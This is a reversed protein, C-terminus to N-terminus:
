WHYQGLPQGFHDAGNTALVGHNTKRRGGSNSSFLGRTTNCDTPFYYNDNRDCGMNSEPGTASDDDGNIIASTAVSLWGYGNGGIHWVYGVSLDNNTNNRAWSPKLNDDVGGYFCGWQTVWGCADALESGGEASAYAAVGAITNAGYAGTRIQKDLLQAILGGTSYAQIYCKNSGTCESRLTAFNIVGTDIRGKGDWKNVTAVDRTSGATDLTAGSWAAESRGHMYVSYVTASASPAIAAVALALLAINKKM